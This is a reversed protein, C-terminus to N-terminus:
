KYGYDTELKTKAKESWEGGKKSLSDLQKRALEHRGQMEYIEARLYMAKLRLGSIADDNIVQSLLLIAHDTQNLGSYCLSQQIWLDLKEDTSLVKGKAADEALRLFELAEAFQQNLMNLKALHYWVKSLYYGRTIKNTRYKELMKELVDKAKEVKNQKICTEVLWYASEEQVLPFAEKKLISEAFPNKVQEFEEHTSQFVEEAYELYIQRKTDQSEEAIALNALARELVIRYRLSIYYEKKEEPFLKFQWLQTFATEGEQFADIAKTLNKRRIWKGEPTKRDRKFDLGILYYVNLLFPSQPFKDPFAELHKMAARNGQLYEKYTYLNFYAEPAYPSQPYQEYVQKLLDKVKKSDEQLAELCKSKWFLSEGVFPSFPCLKILRDFVEEAKRYNESQYYLIGLLKLMADCYRGEPFKQIGELLTSEAIQFFNEKNELQALQSAILGHLYFIEDSQNMKILINEKQTMLTDLISFAAIKSTLSQQDDYAQARLLLAETEHSTFLKRNDLLIEAQHYAKEDNLMKARSLYCQALALYANEEKTVESLQTFAWEAKNFYENLELDPKRSTEAIKLYSWGLYHLIEPYWIPKQNQMKLLPEFFHIAQSYDQLHYFIEGQLFAIEHQLLDNKPVVQALNNLIEKATQDKGEQLEIRALYLRSLFQEKSDDSDDILKEFYHRAKTKNDNLFYCLGLEFKIEPSKEDFHLEFLSIAKEYQKLKSYTIGLLVLEMKSLSSESNLVNIVQNYDGLQFYAKALGLRIQFIIQRDQSARPYSGNKILNLLEKYLVIAQDYLAAEYLEEAKKWLTDGHVRSDLLLPGLLHSSEQNSGSFLSKQFSFIIVLVLWISQYINM